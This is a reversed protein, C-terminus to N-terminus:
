FIRKMESWRVYITQLSIDNPSVANYANVLDDHLGKETIPLRGSADSPVTLLTSIAM